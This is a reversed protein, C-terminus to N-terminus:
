LCRWIGPYREDLENLQTICCPLEDDSVYTPEQSLRPKKRLHELKENLSQCEKVAEDPYRKTGQELKPAEAEFELEQGCYTLKGSYGVVREGRRLAIKM